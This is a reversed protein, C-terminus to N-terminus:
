PLPPLDASARVVRSDSSPATAPDGIAVAGKGERGRAAAIARMGESAPPSDPRLALAAAYAKEADPYRGELALVLGLNARADAPECGARAFEELAGDSDGRRALVMALNAHSRAHGPELAIAKRFDAEAKELHHQISEHYGRDCILEADKPNRRLARAFHDSGEEFDGKGDCLIALRAHVDGRKPDNELAKRYATEAEAPRDAAELSRGLAFQVDAAGRGTVKVEGDGRLARASSHEPITKSIQACGAPILALLAAAGRITPRM